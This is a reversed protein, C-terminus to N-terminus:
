ITSEMTSIANYFTKKSKIRFAEMVAKRAQGKIRYFSKDEEQEKPILTRYERWLQYNRVSLYDMLGHQVLKDGVDHKFFLEELVEGVIKKNSTQAM